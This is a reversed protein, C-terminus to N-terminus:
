KPRTQPTSTNFPFQGSYRRLIFLILGNLIFIALTALLYTPVIGLTTLGGGVILFFCAYGASATIYSRFLSLAAASGNQRHTFISTILGFVPFPAILGSLQPGLTESLGTLSFVFIAALVMRLPLDWVPLLATKKEGGSKPLLCFTLVVVSLLIFFAAALDLSFQNLAAVAMFFATVSIAASIQWNFRLAAIGYVLCFVCVAVQGGLNGAASAAAFGTGNQMAMILSIPASTLPFGLLWGSVASGWRRGALAIVAIIVPSLILKLTLIM